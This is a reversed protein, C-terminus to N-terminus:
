EYAINREKNNNTVDDDIASEFPDYRKTMLPRCGRTFLYVCDLPMYLIDSYPKNAKLGFFQATGVDQGGLYICNDCNNIITSAANEGYLSKLQSISQIILSVSIERSRIVSIIKDFDPILTNSAFDDFFIRVPIKLRGKPNRDAASCLEQLLQTYFLNVLKDQSRDTDSITLFVVTKEEGLSKFELQKKNNYLYSLEDFALKVLDSTLIARVSDYTKDASGYSTLISKFRIVAPVSPNLAIFVLMKRFLDMDDYESRTLVQYDEDDEFAFHGDEEIDYINRVSELQREFNLAKSTSLENLMDMVTELSPNIIDSMELCLGMIAECLNQASKPWFPDKEVESIPTIVTAIKMIDKQSFMHLKKNYGIYRLPNYGIISASNKANEMLNDFNIKYVKYGRKKLKGSLQRYLNDKTDAIVMSSCGMEVNPILYGSTKGAGAAGVILDNNNIKTHHTDNSIYIDKALLRMNAGLKNEYLTNNNRM